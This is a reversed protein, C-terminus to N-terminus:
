DLLVYIRVATLFVEVERMWLSLGAVEERWSSFERQLGRVRDERERLLCKVEMVQEVLQDAEEETRDAPM